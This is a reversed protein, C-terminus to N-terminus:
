GSGTRAGPESSGPAASSPRPSRAACAAAPAARKAAVLHRVCAHPPPSRAEGMCDAESARRESSLPLPPGVRGGTGGEQLIERLEQAAQRASAPRQQPDKALLGLVFDDLRAPLEVYFSPRPPPSKLHHAVLELNSRGPFPRRRTLMEFAIVGVAYLDTQPGVAENLAQEPAMYHPTGVFIESNSAVSDTAPTRKALGFDLVKVSESGEREHALFLNSPKLDRHIVGHAHAAALADFVEILLQIARVPALPAQRSILEHLPQGELYEMVLYPGFDPHQGFGFVDVIGRHQIASTTRAERLLPRVHPSHAYESRLLKLAVKRGLTVHEAEYVIGMGGRGICRRVQYEGLQQSILATEEETPPPEGPSSELPAAPLGHLPCAGDGPLLPHGCIPCARPYSSKM